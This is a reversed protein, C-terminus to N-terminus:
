VEFYWTTHFVKQYGNNLTKNTYYWIWEDNNKLINLPDKENNVSKFINNSVWINKPNEAIESLEVALYLAKGIWILDQKTQNDGAKGSKAVIIKGQAIGVGFDIKKKRNMELISNIENVFGKIDMAARVARSASNENIFFALIGDGNFSRIHGERREICYIVANLFAKHIKISWFDNADTLIERSKRMDIYLVKTHEITKVTNGFTLDGKQPIVSTGSHVYSETLYEKIKGFIDSNTAM